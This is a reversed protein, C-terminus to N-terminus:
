GGYHFARRWTEFEGSPRHRAFGLLLSCAFCFRWCGRYNVRGQVDGEGRFGMCLKEGQQPAETKKKKLHLDFM